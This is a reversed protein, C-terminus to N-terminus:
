PKTGFADRRAKMLAEIVEDLPKAEAFYTHFTPEGPPTTAMYVLPGGASEVTRGIEVTDNFAAEINTKIIETM